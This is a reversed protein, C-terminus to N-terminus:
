GALFGLSLTGRKECLEVVAFTEQEVKLVLLRLVDDRRVQSVSFVATNSLLGM